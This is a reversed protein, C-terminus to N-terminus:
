SSLVQQLVKQLLNSPNIKKIDKIRVWELEKAKSKIPSKTLNEIRIYIDHHTIGHKLDFTKPKQNQQRITGPFIMQGKLFPAYNNKILAVQEGKRYIEPVWVWVESQKRPKKLPLAQTLGERFAVCNSKWPCLLCTPNQPTCVTAGLEMLGQNLLHSPGLSAIEDAATQLQPKAKQTWWEVQWGYVRTLVRIVNGDLVGVAEDFALSAVARSTYPGFGPLELLETATKPFGTAALAQASKHLNRARSYYGLGAWMEYVAELPAEALSEVTPFRTLFREYYPIVAAVTTQQLMVESIWIRYPNRDQRWPLDRHNEKYWALLSKSLATTTAKM